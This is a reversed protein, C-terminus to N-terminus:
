DDARWALKATEDLSNKWSARVDSPTLGYRARFARNFNSLDGFGAEYAITSIPLEACFPSTLLHYSHQLRHERLFQSFSTGETEFLMRLYRPSVRQRQAIEDLSLGPRHRYARTTKPM